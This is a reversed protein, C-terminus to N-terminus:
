DDKKSTKAWQLLTKSYRLNLLHERTKASLPLIRIHDGHRVRSIGVYFSPLDVNKQNDGACNFDIIIREETCGQVKFFTVAFALDVWYHRIRVGAKKLKGTKALKAEGIDSLTLPVVVSDPLLTLDPSWARSDFATFHVNVSIPIDDDPLWYIEGPQCHEIRNWHEAQSEPNLTLSHLLCRTGNALRLSTSINDKVVAPAGRVFYFILEQYKFLANDLDKGM